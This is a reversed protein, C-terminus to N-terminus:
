ATRVNNAVTLNLGLAGAKLSILMVTPNESNDDPVGFSKVPNKGNSKPKMKGKGKGESTRPSEDDSSDIFSYDGDSEEAEFGSADSIIKKLSRLNRKAPLPSDLNSSEQIDNLLPRSFRELVEQRKRASM